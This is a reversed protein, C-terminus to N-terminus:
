PGVRACNWTIKVKVLKLDVGWCFHLENWVRGLHLIIIKINMIFRPFQHGLAFGPAAAQLQTQPSTLKFFLFSLSKKSLNFLKEEKQWCWGM